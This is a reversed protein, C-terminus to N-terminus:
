KAQSTIGKRLTGDDILPSDSGKGKIFQNGEKDPKSGEITVPSNPAWKGFGATDFAEQIAAEGAIGIDTFVQKVDGAALNKELNKEAGAQIDGQKTELPMKIFSRAPIKTKNGRGAKDTGFEHVVGLAALTLGGEETSGAEGLIGVDVYHDSKLEKVLKELQSFDGSIESDGHKESFGM